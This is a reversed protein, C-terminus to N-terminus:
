ATHGACGSVDPPATSRVKLSKNPERVTLPSEVRLNTSNFFSTSGMSM